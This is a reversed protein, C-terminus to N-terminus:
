AVGDRMQTSARYGNASATCNYSGPTVNPISYAGKSATKTSYGSGCNVSANAIGARTKANSVTGTITGPKPKATVVATPTSDVAGQGYPNTATATERVRITHGVDSATLTYTAGIAVDICNAGASDCRRWADATTIPATGSWTGPKLTLTQGETATGSITPPTTNVPATGSVSGGQYRALAFDYNSTGVAVINGDPQLAVDSAGDVGGAGFDTTQKGDRGFSLDPSGDTNYRAVAFDNTSAGTVLIKGDAQIALAHGHDQGGFNTSQEGDGSFSLDLSGDRNYRALAFNGDDTQTSGAVVIKGDAQIAVAKGDHRVGFDTTQKGDRGFSLDPSGDTNYRALAFKSAQGVLSTGAVVIRGDDLIAVSPESEWGGLDTTQTGGNGFSADFSGDPNYRALAFDGGGTQGVVVIKETESIGEFQLAVDYASGGFGTTQTGGNGFSGDLSGNANYRAVAFRGYPAAGVVVIKGDRQLAVAFAGNDSFVGAEPSGFETTQTGGHGFSADLSGNANYRALAFQAPFGCWVNDVCVWYVRSGVAVIKGDPQLAVGAGSEQDGFNTTSKGGVGFTPDLDGPAAQAACGAATRSSRRM